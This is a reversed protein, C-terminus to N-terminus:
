SRSRGRHATTGARAPERRARLAAGLLLAALAALLLLRPDTGTAALRGLLGGEASSGGTASSTVPRVTAVSTADGAPASSSGSSGGAGSTGSGTDGDASSGTGATGTDSGTGPDAPRASDGDSGAPDSSDGDPDAPSTPGGTGPGGDETGPGEEEPAVSIQEGAGHAVLRLSGSLGQAAPPADEDLTIRVLLWDEARADQQGLDIAAGAEPTHEAVLPRNGACSAAPRQTCSAVSVQVWAALDGDVILERHITGEEVEPAAVRVAWRATAGPTLAHAGELGEAFLELHQGRVVQQPGEAHSLAPVGLLLALALGLLAIMRRVTSM